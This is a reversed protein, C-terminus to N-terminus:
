QTAAVEQCSSSLTLPNTEQLHNSGSVQWLGAAADGTRKNLDLQTSVCLLFELSHDITLLHLSFNSATILNLQATTRDVAPSLPRFGTHFAGESGMTRVTYSGSSVKKRKTTLSSSMNESGM